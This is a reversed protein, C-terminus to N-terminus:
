DLVVYKSRYALTGYTIGLLSFKGLCRSGGHNKAVSRERARVYGRVWARPPRPFFSGPVCQKRM